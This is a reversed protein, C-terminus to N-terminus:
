HSDGEVVAARKDFDWVLAKHTDIPKPLLKAKYFVDAIAQQEGFNKALVPRVAYSRRANAREVTEADLGWVPALIKAAEQPHAKTWTGAASLQKYVVNLIDPHAQAFSTSALYYRQYSAIGDGRVLIRANPAKEVSAVYPDWTFWADVSNREFAARADAPALYAIQVDAPTLKAQALAALLLYHCGAAKTVAIRKGKLDALSHIPDDRHVIVAQASPSPSEQAIYVFHSNAAQAFIPVTDAIDATVDLASANLAETLPLGSAFEAWEIKVHLPALAQDLTGRAKLIAMLTSSKQYGIRLTVNDSGSSQAYATTTSSVAIVASLIVGLLSASARRLIPKLM